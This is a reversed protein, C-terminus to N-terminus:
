KGLLQYMDGGQVYKFIFFLREENKFAYKTNIIFPHSITEM